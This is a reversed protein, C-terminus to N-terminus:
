AALLGAKGAIHFVTEDLCNEAPMGVEEALAM